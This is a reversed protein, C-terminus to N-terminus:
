AAEAREVHALSTMMSFCLLGLVLDAAMGLAFAWVTVAGFDSLTRIRRLLVLQGIWGVPVLIYLSNVLWSTKPLRRGQWVPAPLFDTAAQWMAWFGWLNYLPILMAALAGWPSLPYDPKLRRLDAHLVCVWVIFLLSGLTGIQSSVTGLLRGFGSGFARTGVALVMACLLTRATISAASVVLYVTGYLRSYTRQGNM